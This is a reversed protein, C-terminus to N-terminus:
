CTFGVVTQYAVLYMYPTDNLRVWGFTATTGNPATLQPPIPPLTDEHYAHYVIHRSDADPYNRWIFYNSEERVTPIGTLTLTHGNKQIIMNDCVEQPPGGNRHLYPHGSMEAEGVPSGLICMQGDIGTVEIPM